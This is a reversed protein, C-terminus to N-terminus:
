VYTLAEATLEEVSTHGSLCMSIDLEAILNSLVDVVGQKGGLALGYVHPRGILVAKAGLAIAKFVDAGTRVGSDLLVTMQDGVAEAIAPLADLSAIEGDIQRGGHNSVVIGDIGSDAARRADDPHLVGKLVVPLTTRNRLTAIDDWNLSPRSYIRLFTQMAARARPSALNTLINGPINRAIDFVTRLAAPTIKVGAGKSGKSDAIVEDVLANFAPDSTYQAIGMGRAFPLSGLNLDRPRWGLMTTDLTVVLAGAGSAEARGIFSDVVSEETSWYLQYWHPADGMANAVKEMPVSGQSSFVYPVGVEAAAQGVAVDAKRHAMELVGIPAVLLPAPITRGFLTVSLDRQSADRLMRPVIAWRDFAARNAAVTREAGAGGAIYAFAKEDLIQQAARELAQPDTPVTPRIGSFGDRYIDDQRVGGPSPPPSPPVASESM